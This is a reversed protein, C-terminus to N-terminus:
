KKINNIQNRLEETCKSVRRTETIICYDYLFAAAKWKTAQGFRQMGSNGEEELIFRTLGQGAAGCTHFFLVIKQLGEKMM